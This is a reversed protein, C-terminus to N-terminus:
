IFENKTIISTKLGVLLSSIGETINTNPKFNGM